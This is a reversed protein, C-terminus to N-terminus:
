NKRHLLFAKAERAEGDKWGYFLLMGDIVNGKPDKVPQINNFKWDVFESNGPTLDRIKEWTNGKNYSCWEEIYGGGYSNMSGEKPNYKNHGVLLCAHLVGNEDLKLYGSNWFHNSPTIVTQEWKNNYRVYYYNFSDPTDESIVHLFAPNDNEDIIIDPPVGTGRWGTDWIKCKANANDLDIPTKVTEGAFNKVEHTQLNIKVYYLNYKFDLNTKTNYRPNYFKEPVNKKNDDYYCFAVHLFKGDKGPLCTQYSSMENLDLPNDVKKTEGGMNLDTVDNEPGSWTKGEDGSILYSWSSRHEGTRFYILKKNDYINYVAPYSLSHRIQSAVSWDEVSKGIDAIKKSILHTGSSSHCGYLVHLYDYQDAWIVPCYHQDSKPPGLTVEESFNRTGPNYILIKPKTDASGKEAGGNFVIYVKGNIFVSQPRLRRDYLMKIQGGDGFSFTQYDIIEIKQAFSILIMIWTMFISLLIRKIM